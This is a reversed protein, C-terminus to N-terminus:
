AKAFAAQAVNELDKSEKGRHLTVAIDDTMRSDISPILLSLLIGTGSFAISALFVTQYASMSGHKYAAVAINEIAPTLGKIGNLSASQGSELASLLSPISARPLGAAVVAPIVAEPVTTTLRNNLITVYITSALTSLTSRVSGAVGVAVGIEEQAHIYMGPLTFALAEVWGIFFCGVTLLGMPLTKSAPTAAAVGLYLETGM